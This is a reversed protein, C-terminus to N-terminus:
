RNEIWVDNFWPTNVPSPVYNHINSRVVNVTDWYNLVLHPADELILRNAEDYLTRAQTSEEPDYDSLIAAQTLLEEVRPNQAGGEVNYRSRNLPGQSHYQYWAFEFATSRLPTIRFMIADGMWEEQPGAAMASATTYEIQNIEVQVGIEALQSQVLIAQNVFLPENLPVITFRLPNGPGYGAEELLQRALELDREVVIDANHAWHHPPFISGGLSGRGGLVADVLVQRDIALSIARRVRADDMPPLQTRFTMLSQASSSSQAIVTDPFREFVEIQGFSPDLILNVAGTQYSALQTSPEPIVRFEISDLYPLGENWYDDHRLVLVHSDRVWEAVRFPGTGDWATIGYQDGAEEVFSKNVIKAHNGAVFSLIVPWPQHLHIAVRREDLAEVLAVNEQWIARFTAQSDPEYLRQYTFVVDEATLVDGSHFRVGERITFIYTLPDPNEPFDVALVPVIEDHANVGLLGENTNNLITIGPLGPDIIDHMSRPTGSQAVVLQGGYSPEQSFAMSAMALCAAVTFAQWIRLNKM